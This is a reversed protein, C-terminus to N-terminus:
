RNEGSHEAIYWALRGTTEMSMSGCAVGQEFCYSCRAKCGTMAFITYSTIHETPRQVHM